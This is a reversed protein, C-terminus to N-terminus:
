QIAVNEERMIFVADNRGSTGKIVGHCGKALIVRAIVCRYLLTITHSPHTIDDLSYWVERIIMRRQQENSLEGYKADVFNCNYTKACRKAREPLQLHLM